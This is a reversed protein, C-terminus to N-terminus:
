NHGEVVISQIGTVTSNGSVNLIVPQIYPSYPIPVQKRDTTTTPNVTPYAGAQASQAFPGAPFDSQLITITPNLISTTTLGDYGVTIGAYPEGNPKMPWPIATATNTASPALVNSTFPIPTQASLASALLLFLTLTKM